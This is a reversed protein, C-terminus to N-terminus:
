IHILSLEEVPKLNSNSLVGHEHPYTGTLITIHSPTTHAIPAFCSDFVISEAALADLKPTTDRFYGYAGVHDRRVTDLTILALNPPLDDESHGGCGVVSLAILTLVQVRM